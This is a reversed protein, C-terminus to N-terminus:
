ATERSDATLAAQELLRATAERISLARTGDKSLFVNDCGAPFNLEAEIAVTAELGLLSDFGELAGGLPKISDTLEPCGYGSLTQIDRLVKTLADYIQQFTPATSM